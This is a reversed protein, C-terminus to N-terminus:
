PTPAGEALLGERKFRRWIDGPIPAHLNERNAVAEAPLKAGPIVAAVAPHALPFQLAAAALPVDYEGCIAAMRTSKAVIEPPPEAYMYTAARGPDALWGSAYPAAIVVGIGRRECLPLIRRLARTELLTYGGAVVFFDVYAVSAIRECLAEHHGHDWSWANRSELNCGCGIAKIRGADRWEKLAQAGGGAELEALHAEIQAPSHYGYDIDHITLSDVASLGLRQRSDGHQASIADFTYEFRVRFGTAPDRPTRVEGGPSLTRNHEDRVPEPVLTKGIKTNVRFEERADSPGPAGSAGSPGRRGLEGLAIGLRRESRGLGYWPATDYFRVGTQWAAAVTALSDANTVQAAGITGGGFGLPTVLLDSNGVRRPSTTDL